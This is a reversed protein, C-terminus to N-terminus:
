LLNVKAAFRFIAYYRELDAWIIREAESSPELQPLGLRM